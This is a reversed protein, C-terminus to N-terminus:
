RSVLWMDDVNLFSPSGPTVYGAFIVVSNQSGSNFMVSYRRYDTRHTQPGPDGDAITRVDIDRGATSRVGMLGATINNADIWATLTYNTNPTVAVTQSLDVFKQTGSQDSLYAAHNGSRAHLWNNDVGAGGPGNDVNWYPALSTSAEFGPDQILNGGKSISLTPTLVLLGVSDQDMTLVTSFSSAPAQTSNAVQQLSSANQNYAWNSHTKDVLYETLQFPNAQFASPLNNLNITVTSGGTNTLMLAVGSSDETALPFLSSTGGSLGGSAVLMNKGMAMMQYVNYLPFVKGDAPNLSYPVFMSRSYRRYEDQSFAFPLVLNALNNTELETWGQAVYTAATMLEGPSPTSIENSATFAWETVFQPLNPNLGAASLQNQLTQADSRVDGGYEHWSLFDLELNQAKVFSIFASMFSSDHRYVAPGGVLFPLEGSPLAANVAQVAQSVNQYLTEYQTSTLTNDPENWVEIYRIGPYKSRLHNLGDKVLQQYQGMNVPVANLEGTQTSSPADWGPEGSFSVFPQAGQAIINDLMPSDSGWDRGPAPAAGPFPNPATFDYQGPGAQAWVAPSWFTRELRMGLNRVLLDDQPGSSIQTNAVAQNLPVFPIGVQSYDVSITNQARSQAALTAVVLLSLVAQISLPAM